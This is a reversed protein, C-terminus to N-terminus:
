TWFTTQGSMGKRTLAFDWRLPDEPSFRRFFETIEQCAKRDAQRRTTVGEARAWALVHTDVPALLESPKVRSWGGPDIADHRVMWRFFLNLRKFASSTRPRPVLIGIDGHSHFHRAFNELRVWPDSTEGLASELTDYRRLVDGTATLWIALKQSSFFRYTLDATLDATQAPNLSRLAGALPRSLRELLKKAFAIIANVRGLSLCAVLFAGVERDASDLEWVLSVPDTPLWEPRHWQQYLDEGERLFAEAPDVLSM